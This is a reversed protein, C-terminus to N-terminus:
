AYFVHIGRRQINKIKQQIAATIQQGPVVLPVGPPYPIIFNESCAPESESQAQEAIDALADMVHQVATEDIGIHFNFLVSNETIRNVYVGHNSYLMEKIDRVPLGLKEMNVSVKTPDSHSFPFADPSYSDTNIAGPGIVEIAHQRFAAALRTARAMLEEGELAMQARALDLSALLPYSPSTTHLRFRSVKLRAGLAADGCYHIMSAQRLCSMSKHASHTCVIRLDPWQDRLRGAALATLGKLDRQFYNAAGWAEDVLFNTTTAGNELLYRILGPIDYVVGDYSHATLVIMQYPRNEAQAALVMRLLDAPAWMNKESKGCSWATQLYDLAAGNRHLGFHLSQHCTKDLLVRGNKEFLADIAIQNSVTTGSTVFYTGDAGFLDAALKEAQHIVQTGFFFSDFHDGTITLDSRLYSDGFLRSYTNRLGATRISRGQSLPLAHFSNINSESLSLLASALPTESQEGRGPLEHNM